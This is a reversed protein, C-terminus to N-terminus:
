KPLMNHFFKENDSMKYLAEMFQKETFILERKTFDALWTKLQMKITDAVEKKQMPISKLICISFIASELNKLNIM